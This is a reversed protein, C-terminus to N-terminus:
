CLYLSSATKQAPAEPRGDAAASSRKAHRANNTEMLQTSRFVQFDLFGSRLLRPFALRAQPHLPQISTPLTVTAM